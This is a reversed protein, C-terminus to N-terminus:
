CSRSFTGFCTAFAYNINQYTHNSVMNIVTSVYDIHNSVTLCSRVRGSVYYETKSSFFLVNYMVVGFIRARKDLKHHVIKISVM